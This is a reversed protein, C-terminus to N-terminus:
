FMYTSGDELYVKVKLNKKAGIYLYEYTTCYLVLPEEIFKHTYNKEINTKWEKKYDEIRELRLSNVDFVKENMDVAEDVVVCDDFITKKHMCIVDQRILLSSTAASMHYSRPMAIDSCLTNVLRKKSRFSIAKKHGFKGKGIYAESFDSKTIVFSPM